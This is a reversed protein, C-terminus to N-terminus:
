ALEPDADLVKGGEEGLLTSPRDLHHRRALLLQCRGVWPLAGDHLQLGADRLASADDGFRTTDPEVGACEGSRTWADCRDGSKDEGTGVLNGVQVELPDGDVRVLRVTSGEPRWGTWLRIERDLRLHVDDGVREPEIRQLEPQLVDHALAVFARGTLYEAADPQFLAQHFRRRGNAPLVAPGLWAPALTERTAPPRRRAAGGADVHLDIRIARHSEVRASGLDARARERAGGLDEGLLEADIERVDVDHRRIRERRWEVEPGLAAPRGEGHAVCAARGRCLEPALDELKGGSLEPRLGIGEREHFLVDDRGALPERERVERPQGLLRAAAEDGVPGENSRGCRVVGLPDLSM